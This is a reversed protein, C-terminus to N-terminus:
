ILSEFLKKLLVSPLVKHKRCKIALREHDRAKTPDVNSTVMLINNPSAQMQSLVM